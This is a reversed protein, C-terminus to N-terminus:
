VHARGIEVLPIQDIMLSVDEIRRSSNAKVDFLLTGSRRRVPRLTAQIKDPGKLILQWMRMDVPGYVEEEVFTGRPNSPFYTKFCINPRLGSELDPRPVGSPGAWVITKPLPVESDQRDFADVSPADVAKRMANQLDSSCM